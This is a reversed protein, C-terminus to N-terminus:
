KDGTTYNGVAYVTFLLSLLSCMNFQSLSLLHLQFQLKLHVFVFFSWLRDCNWESGLRLWCSTIKAVAWNTKCLETTTTQTPKIKRWATLNLWASHSQVTWEQRYGLGYMIGFICDLLICDTSIRHVSKSPCRTFTFGGLKGVIYSQQFLSFVSLESM